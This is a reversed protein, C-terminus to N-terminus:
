YVSEPSLVCLYALFATGERLLMIDNALTHWREKAPPALLNGHAVPVIEEEVPTPAAPAQAQKSPIQFAAM